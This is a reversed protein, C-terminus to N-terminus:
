FSILLSTLRQTFFIHIRYNLSPANLIPRIRHSVDPLDTQMETVLKNFLSHFIVKLHQADGENDTSYIEYDRSIAPLSKRKLSQRVVAYGNEQKFAADSTSVM